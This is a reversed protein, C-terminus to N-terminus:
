LGRTQLHPWPRGLSESTEGPGFWAGPRRGVRPPKDRRSPSQPRPWRRRPPAATSSWPCRTRGTPRPRSDLSRTTPWRPRAALPPSPRAGATWRAHPSPASGVSCTAVPPTPKGTLLSSGHGRHRQGTTADSRRGRGGPDLTAQARKPDVRRPGPGMSRLAPLPAAGRGFLPARSRSSSPAACPQRPLPAASRSAALAARPAPASQTRSSKPPWVCTAPPQPGESIASV